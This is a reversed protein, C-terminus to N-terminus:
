PLGVISDCEGPVDTAYGDHTCTFGHLLAEPIAAPTHPNALDENLPVLVGM